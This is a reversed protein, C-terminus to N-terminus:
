VNGPLQKMWRVTLRFLPRDRDEAEIGAAELYARVAHEVDQRVLSQRSRGGKEQFRLVCTTEHHEFDPTLLEPSVM